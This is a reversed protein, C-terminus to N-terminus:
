KEIEDVQATPRQLEMDAWSLVHFCLAIVGIECPLSRLGDGGVFRKDKL